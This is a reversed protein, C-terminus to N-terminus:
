IQFSQIALRIDPIPPHHSRVFFRKNKTVQSILAENYNYFVNVLDSFFEPHGPFSVSSTISKDLQEFKNVAENCCNDESNKEQHHNKDSEHSHSSTHSHNDTEHSIVEKVDPHHKSNFGMDLGLSCAFGTVTNLCFVVVLFFANMKITRKTNM